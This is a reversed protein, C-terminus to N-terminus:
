LYHHFHLQPVHEKMGLTIRKKMFRALCLDPQFYPPKVGDIMNPFTERIFSVFQLSSHM